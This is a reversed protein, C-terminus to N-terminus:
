RARAWNTFRDDLDPPKLNGDQEAMDEAAQAQLDKLLDLLAARRDRYAALFLLKAVACPWFRGCARCRWSPRVPNHEAVGRRRRRYYTM